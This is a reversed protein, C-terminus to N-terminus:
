RRYWHRKFNFHLQLIGREFVSRFGSRRDTDWQRNVIRFAIDEYPPGAHFRLIAFEPHDSAELYYKPTITKDILDPYFIAFKYGQVTKPPPNDHDYHTQNYKNWEWGTRVRNFYRPKRPRYKDGWHYTKGPLTVEDTRGMKEEDADLEQSSADIYKENITEDNGINDPLDLAPTLSSSISEIPYGEKEEAYGEDNNSKDKMNNLLETVQHLINKHHKMVYTKARELTVQLGIEEWYSRDAVNGDKINKEIDIQLSDLESSSKNHILREVDDFISRHIAAGTTRMNHKRRKDTAIVLISEWYKKHEDKSKNSLQLFTDIDPILEQIEDQSLDEM